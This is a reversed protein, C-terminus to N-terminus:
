TSTGSSMRGCRPSEEDPTDARPKLIKIFAGQRAPATRSAYRFCTSFPSRVAQRARRRHRMRASTTRLAPSSGACCRSSLRRGTPPWGARSDSSTLSSFSNRSFVYESCGLGGGIKLKDLTFGRERFFSFIADPKACEYPYGGVWDVIDHWHSMGRAATTCRGRDARLRRAPRRAVRACSVEAGRSRQRRHRVARAVPAAAAHLHAQDAELPREPQGTDNYIAIFLSAARHSRGSRMTSRRGCRGPTTCCAGRISSTSSASGPSTTPTSYRAASSAGAPITPVIAAAQLERTCAVSQPDYDFSHVEAGLRRAALSFLGSGSGIDLFRLGDLRQEVELMEGLSREAQGIREDDLVSLFRAWNKASSSASAARSRSRRAPRATSAADPSASVIHQRDDPRRESSSAIACTTPACCCTRADVRLLLIAIAIKRRASICTPKPSRRSRRAQSRRRFIGAQRRALAAARHLGGPARGGADAQAPTLPMERATKDLVRVIHQCMSIGNASLSSRGSGAARRASRRHYGIRGGRAPRRAAVHRLGRLEAAIRRLPGRRRAVDRRALVSVMVNCQQTVLSEFTVPGSSPHMDMFLRGARLPDGFNDANPYVVALNERSAARGTSARSLRAGVRRRFRAAGRARRAGRRNRCQARRESRPEGARHLRIRDRFPALAAELAATDPSGDNVVIVEFDTFTQASSRRSRRPSTRLPTTRRCSSASRPSAMASGDRATLEAGHQCCPRVSSSGIGILLRRRAGHLPNRGFRGSADDVATARCRPARGARVTDARLRRPVTIAAEVRPPQPRAEGERPLSRRGTARRGHRGRRAVIAPVAHDARRKRMPTRLKAPTMTRRHAANLRPAVTM